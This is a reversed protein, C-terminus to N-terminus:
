DDRVDVSKWDEPGVFGPETEWPDWQGYAEHEDIYAVDAREWTESRDSRDYIRRYIFDADGGYSIEIMQGQCIPPVWMRPLDSRRVTPLTEEKRMVEAGAVIGDWCVQVREKDVPGGHYLWDCNEERQVYLGSNRVRWNGTEGVDALAAMIEADSMGIAENKM